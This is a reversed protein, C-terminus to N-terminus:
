SDSRIPVYQIVLQYSVSKDEIQISYATVGDVMVDEQSSGHENKNGDLLKCIKTEDAYNINQCNEKRKCRHVCTLISPATVTELVQGPYCRGSVKESHSLIIMTEAADGISITLLMLFVSFNRIMTKPMM